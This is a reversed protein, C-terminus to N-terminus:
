KAPEENPKGMDAARRRLRRTKAWPMSTWLSWNTIKRQKQVTRYSGLNINDPSKRLFYILAILDVCDAFIASSENWWIAEGTCAEVTEMSDSKVQINNCGMHNAVRLGERMAMAEAVVVSAINLLFSSSAAVFDEMM